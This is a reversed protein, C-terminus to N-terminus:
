RKVEASPADRESQAPNAQTELTSPAPLGDSGSQLCRHEVLIDWLRRKLEPLITAAKAPTKAGLAEDLKVEMRDVTRAIAHVEDIMSAGPETTTAGRPGWRHVAGGGGAVGVILPLLYKLITVLWTPIVTTSNSPATGSM